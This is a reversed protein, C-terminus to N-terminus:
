QNAYIDGFNYASLWLQLGKTENGKKVFPKWDTGNITHFRKFDEEIVRLAEKRTMQSTMLWYDLGLNKCSKEFCEDSTVDETQHMFQYIFDNMIQQHRPTVEASAYSQFLQLARRMGICKVLVQLTPLIQKCIWHFTERFSAPNYPPITLRAKESTKLFEVWWRKISCRSRNADVLNIFCVYNNFVEHMYKSFDEESLDCFANMVAMARAAKFEFECRVWSTIDDPMDVGKAKQELLKDYFRCCVASKRNGFMITSGHHHGKLSSRKEGIEILQVDNDNQRTLRSRVETNKVCCRIKRMTLLPKDDNRHIDDAACDVRTFRTHVGNVCASRWARCVNRLKYGCRKLYAEYFALGNGSMEVCIGQRKLRGDDPLKVTIDNYRFICPYWRNRGVWYFENWIDGLKLIDLVNDLARDIGIEDDCLYTFTLYDFHM